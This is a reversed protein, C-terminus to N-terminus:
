GGGNPKDNENGLAELSRFVGRFVAGVDFGGAEIKHEPQSPDNALEALQRGAEGEIVRPAGKPAQVIVRDADVSTVVLLITRQSM